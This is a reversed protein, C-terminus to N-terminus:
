YKKKFQTGLIVSIETYIKYKEIQETNLSHEKCLLILDNFENYTKYNDIELKIFNLSILNLDLFMRIFERLHFVLYKRFLINEKELTCDDAFPNDVNVVKSNYMNEKEIVPRFNIEENSKDLLMESCTSILFDLLNSIRLVVSTLGGKCMNELKNGFIMIEDGIAESLVDNTVLHNILFTQMNNVLNIKFLLKDKYDSSPCSINDKSNYNYFPFLMNARFRNTHGNSLYYPIITNIIHGDKKFQINYNVVINLKTGDNDTIWFADIPTLLFEDTGELNLKIQPFNM